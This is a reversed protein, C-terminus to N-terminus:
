GLGDPRVETLRAVSPAVFYSAALADATAKLQQEVRLLLRELGARRGEEAHVVALTVPDSLALASRADLLPREEANLRRLHDTRPLAALDHSLRDLQFRLSRPNDPDFLLQEVVSRVQEGGHFRRRYDIISEFAKLISELLVTEAGQPHVPVLTTRLMTSLSVARELRRGGDLFRWATDRVMSEVTLGALALLSPMLRNLEPHAGLLLEPPHCALSALRAEIDAVVQWTDGSLQEQVAFAADVLSRLTVVLSAPRNWDLVADLAPAPPSGDPVPAAGTLAALADLLSGLAQEAGREDLPQDLRGLVALVARITVEAREAHRGIAFMHEAVRGPLAVAAEEAVRVELAPAPAHEPESLLVWADKSLRPRRTGPDGEVGTAVRALGGPMPFWSGGQGVLFARLTVPEPQLRGDDLTPVTSAPVHEQGVWLYPASEIQARVRRLTSGTLVAGLVSRDGPGRDARRVV